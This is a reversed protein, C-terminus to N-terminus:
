RRRDAGSGSPHQDAVLAELETQLTEPSFPKPLFRRSPANLWVPKVGADVDSGSMFLVRLSSTALGALREVLSVGDYAHKLHLDIMVVDFVTGGSFMAEAESAEGTDVV